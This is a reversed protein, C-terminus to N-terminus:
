GRRDPARSAAPREPLRGSRGSALLLAAAAVVVGVAPVIRAPWGPGGARAVALLSGVFGLYAAIVLLGADRGLGRGHYAFVLTLLTLGLYWAAVLTAGPAARGLGVVTGPLLLGVTVNLANSNFATSLV